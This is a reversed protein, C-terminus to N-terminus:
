LTAPARPAKNNDRSPKRCTRPADKVATPPLAASNPSDSKRTLRGPEAASHAAALAACREPTNAWARTEKRSDAGCTIVNRALPNSWNCGVVRPSTALSPKNTPINTCLEAVRVESHARPDVLVEARLAGRPRPTTLASEYWCNAAAGRRSAKHCVGWALRAQWLRHKLPQLGIVPTDSRVARVGTLAATLRVDPEATVCPQPAPKPSVTASLMRASEAKAATIVLVCSKLIPPSAGKAGSKARPSCSKAAPSRRSSPRRSAAITRGISSPSPRTSVATNRGYAARQVATVGRSACPRSSEGMHSAAAAGVGAKVCALSGVPTSADAAKESGIVCAQAPQSKVLGTVATARLTM